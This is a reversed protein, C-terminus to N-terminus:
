IKKISAIIDKIEQRTMPRIIKYNKDDTQVTLIRGDPGKEGIIQVLPKTPNEPKVETVQAIKGNELYLYSGIPFLSTTLLLAKVVSSDYLHNENKLLELMAEYTTHAEKFHRPASIAEYSCAVAIIKANLTIEGGNLHRPYGTGTEREHHELVGIQVAAPFKADKVINYGLIPHTAILIRESVTLKKENMYMQPPIRLMGIEHVLCTVGLEVLRSQPLKMQMGIALSIITTRITHSVLFEKQRYEINPTIRLFYNKNDKLFSSLINVTASIEVYNLEKHTAYHTFVQNVFRSYEDYVKQSADMRTQDCDNQSIMERAKSIVEKVGDDGETAAEHIVVEQSSKKVPESVFSKPQTFPSRGMIGESEVQDFNWNKLIKLMSETVPTSPTSILFSKDLYLNQSFYTGAKLDTIKYNTM